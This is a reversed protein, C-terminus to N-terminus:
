PKYIVALALLWRTPGSAKVIKEIIKFQRERTEQIWASGYNDKPIGTLYDLAMYDLQKVIPSPLRVTQRPFRAAAIITWFLNNLMYVEDVAQGQRLRSRFQRDVSWLIALSAPNSRSLLIRGEVMRNRLKKNPDTVPKNSRALLEAAKQYKRQRCWYLSEDALYDGTLEKDYDDCEWMMRSYEQARDLHKGLLACNAAHFYTHASTVQNRPDSLWDKLLQVGALPTGNEKAQIMQSRLSEESLAITDEAKM